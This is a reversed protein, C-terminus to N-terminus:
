ERTDVPKKDATFFCNTGNEYFIRLYMKFHDIDQLVGQSKKHVGPRPNRMGWTLFWEEVPNKLLQLSNRERSDKEM